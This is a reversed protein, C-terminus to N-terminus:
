KTHLGESRCGGAYTSCIMMFNADLHETHQDKSLHSVAISDYATNSNM